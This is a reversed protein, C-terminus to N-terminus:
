GFRKGGNYRQDWAKALAPTSKRGKLFDAYTMTPGTPGATNSPAPPNDPPRIGVVVTQGDRTYQTEFNLGPYMGKLTGEDPTGVGKWLVGDKTGSPAVWAPPPPPPNDALWRSDEGFMRVWDSIHSNIEGVRQADIRNIEASFQNVINRKEESMRVLANGVMQNRFSSSFLGRANAANDEARVAQKERQGLPANPDFSVRLDEREPTAPDDEGFSVGGYGALRYKADDRAASALPNYKGPLNGLQKSVWDRSLFNPARADDIQPLDKPISPATFTPATSSTKSGTIYGPIARLAASWASAM